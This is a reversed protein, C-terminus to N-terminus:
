AFWQEKYELIGNFETGHVAYQVTLCIVRLEDKHSPIKKPASM